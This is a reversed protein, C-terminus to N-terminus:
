LTKGNNLFQINLWVRDTTFSKLWILMRTSSGLFDGKPETWALIVFVPTGYWFIDQPCVQKDKRVDDKFSLSRRFLGCKGKYDMQSIVNVSNNFSKKFWNINGAQKRDQFM